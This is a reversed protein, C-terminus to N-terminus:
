AVKLDIRKLYFRTARTYIQTTSINEHGLVKQIARIDTGAKYMQTAATHRLKNTTINKSEVGSERM